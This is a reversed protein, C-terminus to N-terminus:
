FEINIGIAFTRPMPYLDAGQESFYNGASEPDAGLWDTFTYLNKISGYIRLGSLNIKEVFKNDFDYSLSLDKIRIFNRSLYWNTGLPNSYNLSPRNNSKNESTWWGTDIQSLARGPVLPNILNFPAIWDIMSNVLISFSFNGFSFDNKLGIIYNPHNGSGVVKRDDPTIKGDKNLDKVKVFGPESGIPIDDGEQYIGDFKYDYFSSIPYGIFWNNGIDSDELGDRDLDTGYLHIITNKNYAFSFSTSWIFRSSNINASNLTLEIGKNNVEGINSLVSKFGNMVPISRKVLLDKTKSDYYEITGSLRRNLLEFDFAINSSYTSEWKLDENGLVSTVVGISSSGEDGYVYRTIDSLSLSQYPMIAQNGVAGYSLRLKLLDLFNINQLFPEDSVIWAASTSPFTAYKKNKAFVSSGDRRATFTFLYKNKLRYNLRGMVSNGEIEWANSSNTLVSGLGLNNYGLGDLVLRNANSQTSEFTTKNNGYLFTLDFANEENLVKNYTIINEWVLDIKKSNYKNASTNNYDVHKDQRTYNYNLGNMLNPSYNIKYSLGKIFPVDINIYFNSFLTENKQENKTLIANRLPNGGAQEEKVSYETPEGDPYFFTSFPSSRYANNVSAPIGSRDRYSFTADMGLNLWNSVKGNINARVTNRKENDNYVLGKEDSKSLSLFYNMFNTKASLNFDISYISADQYIVDWNNHSIGKEYNEAESATLYDKIKNPDAELGLQRRWDLRREIYRDPTLMKVEYSPNSIGYFTNIRITPKETLGKKSTILIVGNAARSGYVTASSADKLIDVKEIDQPNIDSLSGSFIVGDLVILPDNNASLSNQGRILLSGGQGPRGDGKFQVGPINGIIQSINTNPLNKNEDTINVSSIAGTVFRKSQTGYGVVVLEDLTEIDEELIINIVRSSGVSVERSLFGVYTFNLVPNQTTLEISYNGNFDTVTGNTTGIEIVNVGILLEGNSDTVQGSVKVGVQDVRNSNSFSWFINGICFLLILFLKELSRKKM